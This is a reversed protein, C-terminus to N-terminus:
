ATQDVDAADSITMRLKRSRFALLPSRPLGLARLRAAAELHDGLVLSASAPAAVVSVEVQVRLGARRRDAPTSCLFSTHANPLGVRPLPCSLGFFVDGEEIVVLECGRRSEHWTVSACRAPLHLMQLREYALDQNAVVDCVHWDPARNGVGKLATVALQCPGFDSDVVRM